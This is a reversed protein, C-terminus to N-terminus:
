RQKKAPIIEAKKWTDRRKSEPTGGYLSSSSAGAGLLWAWLSKPTCACPTGDCFPVLHDHFVPPSSSCLFSCQMYFLLHGNLAELHLDASFIVCPITSGAIPLRILFIDTSPARKLYSASTKQSSAKISTHFKLGQSRQQSPLIPSHAIWSAGPGYMICIIELSYSFYHEAQHAARLHPLIPLLHPWLYCVQADLIM